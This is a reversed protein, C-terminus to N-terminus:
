GIESFKSMGFDTIHPHLEKDLLINGPKLDRHIVKNNHLHMMGRAIGVLIIQRQTNDFIDDLLGSKTKQLIEALSGKEALDMFITVNDQNNFENLSYGQFQIITPPQYRIMIEIERKIMLRSKPDDLNLNIVKAALIQGTKINEVSFFSGFAGSQIKLIFKTIKLTM